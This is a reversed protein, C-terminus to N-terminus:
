KAPQLIVGISRVVGAVRPADTDAPQVYFAHGEGGLPTRFVVTLFLMPKRENTALAQAEERLRVMLTALSM